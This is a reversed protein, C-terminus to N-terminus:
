KNMWDLFECGAYYGPVVFRWKGNPYHCGVIPVYMSHDSLGIREIKIDIIKPGDVVGCLLGFLNTILFAGVLFYFVNKM